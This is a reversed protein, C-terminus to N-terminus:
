ALEWASIIGAAISSVRFLRSSFIGRARLGNRGCSCRINAFDRASVVLSTRLDLAALARPVRRVRFGRTSGRIASSTVPVLVVSVPTWFAISFARYSTTLLAPSFMLSADRPAMRPRMSPSESWTSEVMMVLARRRPASMLFRGAVSALASMLCRARWDRNVGAEIRLRFEMRTSDGVDRVLLKACSVGLAIQWPIDLLCGNMASLVTSAAPFYRRCPPSSVDKSAFLGMKSAKAATIDGPFAISVRRRASTTMRVMLLRCLSM